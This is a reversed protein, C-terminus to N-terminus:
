CTQGLVRGIRLEVAARLEELTHRHRLTEVWLSKADYIPSPLQDRLQGFRPLATSTYQKKAFYRGLTEHQELRASEAM